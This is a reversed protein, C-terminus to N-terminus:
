WSMRVVYNGEEIHGHFLLWCFIKHMYYHEIGGSNIKKTVEDHDWKMYISDEEIDKKSVSTSYDSDNPSELLEVERNPCESVQALFEGLGAGEMHSYTLWNLFHTTKTEMQLPKM